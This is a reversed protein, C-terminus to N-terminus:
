DVYDPGSESILKFIQNIVFVEVLCDLPRNAIPEDPNYYQHDGTKLTYIYISILRSFVTLLSLNVSLLYSSGPLEILTPAENNEHIYINISDPDIRYHALADLVIVDCWCLQFVNLGVEDPEEQIVTYISTSDTPILDGTTTDVYLYCSTSDPDCSTSDGNPLNSFQPQRYSIRNPVYYQSYHYISLRDLMSTPWSRMDTKNEYGITYDLGHIWEDSFLLQLFSQNFMMHEPYIHGPQFTVGKDLMNTKGFESFYFQLDSMFKASQPLM